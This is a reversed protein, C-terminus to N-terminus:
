EDFSPMSGLCDNIGALCKQRAAEFREKMFAHMDAATRLIVRPTEEEKVTNATQAEGYVGKGLNDNKVEPMMQKPSVPDQEDYIPEQGNRFIVSKKGIWQDENTTSWNANEEPVAAAPPSPPPLNVRSRPYIGPGPLQALHAAPKMRRMLEMHTTYTSVNHSCGIDPYFSQVSGYALGNPVYAYSGSPPPEMSLRVPPVAGHLVPM